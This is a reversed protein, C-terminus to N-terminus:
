FAMANAMIAPAISFLLTTIFGLNLFSFNILDIECEYYLIFSKNFIDVKVSKLFGINEIM